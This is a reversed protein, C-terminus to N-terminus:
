KPGVPRLAMSAAGFQLANAVHVLDGVEVAVLVQDQSTALVRGAVTQTEAPDISFPDTHLVLFLEVGPSAPPTTADVPIAVAVEGTFLAAPDASDATSVAAAPMAPPPMAQLVIVACWSAAALAVTWYVSPRRMLRRLAHPRWPRPERQDSPRPPHM